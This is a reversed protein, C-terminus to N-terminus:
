DTTGGCAEVAVLFEDTPQLALLGYLADDRAPQSLNDYACGCHAAGYGEACVEVFTQRPLAAIAEQTDREIQEGLEAADNEIKDQLEAAVASGAAQFRFHGGNDIQEVLITATRGSPLRASCDAIHGKQQWIPGPCTVTVSGDLLEEFHEAVAAEVGEAELVGRPVLGTQWAVLLLVLLAVLGGAVWPAKRPRQNGADDQSHPAGAFDHGCAACFAGGHVQAGCASCFSM